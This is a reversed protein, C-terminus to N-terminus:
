TRRRRWLWLALLLALLGALLSGGWRARSRGASQAALVQVAQQARAQSLQDRWDPVTEAPPVAYSAQWIAHYAAEESQWRANDWGLEAQCIRRVRVMVDAGGRPLLLGVRVRRLLLDDLQVVGEARAAWRLEAWLFPTGPIPELEGPEAAALLAAADQGYRGLLRQRTREDLPWEDLLGADLAALLDRDEDLDATAEPLVRGAAVLQPWGAALAEAAIHGFTTLKGGTVTLLGQEEWIVHDRSEDSPDAKGTGIVPRIGAFTSVIDELGLNLSPFHAALAAMLYAVEDPTIAPEQGLPVDCDVDTTGFLVSGEWPLVFVPRGDLPHMFSIAQPVNFRWAPFVLHSGRLPRVRPRADVEARLFDAWAGTANVILPARLELRLGTPVDEIVVGAARGDAERCLGVARAYNLATAGEAVAERIVRLVLRADDTQADQYGFGGQLGGSAIYPAMMQFDQPSYYRHSWQMAMLDYVTLGAGYVLRGPREGEYQALLFGLPEVLGTGQELLQERGQVSARTLGFQGSKLYRLGGHVLKSSRSSTGWAFDRQEILVARLGLRVSDRLIGAGTIGGGIIIIDWPQDLEAWLAERWGATWHTGVAM